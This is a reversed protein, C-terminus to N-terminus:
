AERGGPLTALMKTAEVVVRPFEAKPMGRKVRVIVDLAEIAPRADRLVVRLMRRIRNRDVARPLAKKGIVFGVRGCERAAAVSVFQLYQGESKRGTRFVMEFAGTGTLRCRRTARVM